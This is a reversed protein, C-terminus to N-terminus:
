FQDIGFVLSNGAICVFTINGGHNFDRCAHNDQFEISFLWFLWGIWVTKHGLVNSFGILPTLYFGIVDKEFKCKVLRM